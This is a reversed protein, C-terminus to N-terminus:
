DNKMDEVQEKTWRNGKWDQDKFKLAPREVYIKNPCQYEKNTRAFEKTSDRCQYFCMRDEDKIAVFQITCALLGAMVTEIM